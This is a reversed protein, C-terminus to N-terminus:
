ASAARLWSTEAVTREPDPHFWGANQPYPARPNPPWFRGRGVDAIVGRACRLASDALAADFDPWEMVGTASVAKPLNFYACSVNELGSDALLQRYLPLQLNTWWKSLPEIRAYAPPWDRENGGRLHMKAPPEAKDATKYDLVRWRNTAEHYDIRDIKGRIEWGDLMWPQGGRYDAFPIEAHVIRWGDRREEAQVDAFAMLRQRASEVQVLLPLSLPTEFRKAVLGDLLESVAARIDRPDVLDRMSEQRSFIEITDHVLTGFVRADMEAPEPDFFDMGLGFRLYFEFPCALYERFGTVRLARKLEARPPDLTWVAEWPPDAEAPRPEEFLRRVRYPLDDGAGAFLLPSPQGPAGEADIQCVLVDVRGAGRRMALLRALFCADRAARQEEGPLDLRQRLARSLFPDPAPMAPVLGQNFGALVLHPADCWPLELWGSAEIADPEAEAYVQQGALAHRALRLWAPPDLESHRAVLPAIEDFVAPIADPMGPGCLEGLFERLSALWKKGLHASRLQLFRDLARSLSRGPKCRALASDITPPFFDARVKDAEALADELAFGRLHRSLWESVVGNRLLRCAAAFDATALFGAWEGLFRGAWHRDLSEGEPDHLSGGAATISDRVTPLLGRDLVGIELYAPEPKRADPLIASLTAAVDEARACLHVQAAFNEWGPDRECWAAAVPRGWADFAEDSGSAAPVLITLSIEAPLASLAREALPSLDAVGAVVVRRIDEPLRPRSAFALRAAHREARDRLLAASSRELAALVEWRASETHDGLQRAAAQLTWNGDTLTARLDLFARAFQVREEFTRFPIGQPFLPTLDEPPMRDLASIVALLLEIKGVVAGADPELFQSPTIVHPSLVGRPARAALEARLRRGARRTPVLVLTDSLDAARAAGAGGILWEAVAAPTARSWDLFVRRPM